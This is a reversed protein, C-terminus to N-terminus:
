KDLYRAACTPMIDANHNACGVRIIEDPKGNMVGILYDPAKGGERWARIADILSSKNESLLYDVGRGGRGHCMGDALFYRCHERAADTMDTLLRKYYAYADPFPVCPDASGSFIILRGGREFFRTLDTLNANMHEALAENVTDMDRDFDFSYPDYGEGFTWIFPYFHPPREGYSCDRIGCGFMESGIPMGNYIREGTKPNVPGNYVAELASLQENTFKSNCKLYNIFNKVTEEGQWPFPVYNIKGDSFFEAAYDTVSIIESQSFLPERGKPRLHVFNWLFYAHLHTRNNAPVGAIIGDYDDPFYQAESLAQEGGTSSGFFYSYDASKGYYAKILAKAIETMAHTSRRGFDRWMDSNGIGASEGLSTGMDTNAVAYGCRLNDALAGYSIRGALGGNGTGILIGCWDDPLWIESYILSGDGLSTKVSIRLFSPLAEYAVGDINLTGSEKIVFNLESGQSLAAALKNKISDM